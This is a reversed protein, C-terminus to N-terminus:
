RETRRHGIRRQASHARMRRRRTAHIDIPEGSLYGYDGCPHPRLQTKGAGTQASINRPAHCGGRGCWPSPIRDCLAGCDRVRRPHGVSGSVVSGRDRWDAVIFGENDYAEM